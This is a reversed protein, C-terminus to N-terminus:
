FDDEGLVVRPYGSLARAAQLGSMTAAEVCGANIGNRTWDGALYLNEFGSGAGPKPLRHETSGPVSLVYRANPDINATWYQSRLRASGARNAPDFLLRWDLADPAAPNPTWMYGMHQTLFDRMTDFAQATMRKPFGPDTFCAPEPSDPMVGCFYALLRVTDERWDELPVLHTMDAWTDIPEVYAGVVAIPWRWLQALPATLWLQFAQTRVTKVREVMQRWDANTEILERCISPLAPPPIGLVVHEFGLDGAAGRELMVDDEHSPDWSSWASELDVHAAPDAELARLAAAQAPDIQSYDPRTPWCPRGKVEVLPEYEGGTATRLQRGVSVREIRRGDASLHLARVRHFFRFKVGRNKLVQYLPAFIVDGMGGQMKWMVAGDYGFLMRLTGRLLTGAAMSRRQIDGDEFAFALSYLARVWASDVTAPSAHHHRLWDQFDRGDIADFGKRLVDDVVMGRVVTAALDLALWLRRLTDDREALPRVHRKAWDRLDDILRLFLPATAQRVGKLDADLTEAATLAARLLGRPVSDLGMEVEEHLRDIAREIWSEPAPPRRPVDTLGLADHMWRLIEELYERPTLLRGHRPPFPMHLHKWEGDIHEELVVYHHPRFATRWADHDGTLEEYCRQMLPLANYYFGFWIHLGHEEIRSCAAANRGSAGKGGLRWGLQYVTVDYRGANRGETLAMATAM